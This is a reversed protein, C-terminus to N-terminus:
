DFPSFCVSIRNELIYDAIEKTLWIFWIELNMTTECFEFAIGAQELRHLDTERLGIRRVIRGDEQLRKFEEDTM